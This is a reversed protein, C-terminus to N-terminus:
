NKNRLFKLFFFVAVGLLLLILGPIAQAPRELLTNVAFAASILVFIAPVVPYGWARVPRNASAMKRRLVFIGAGALGMFAIDMFTVFTIIKDFLGQFFLLVAVAWVVQVVMAVVPTRWRPHVWALQKFFIGDEAMAYYIRPASMTYISITGFISLAIAVAVAKGGWPALTVVADGAVTRTNAIADLPLLLMYAVNVLLYMGTVILVGLFMAKPVTRPADIAEGAVYSAHHWGGVSFLVGILGTLLAATLNTPLNHNLSFDVPVKEADFYLFGAVIIGAIALLKLGTFFNSLRQSVNVGLMNVGTLAVMTVAALGTKEGESMHPAFIKMYDAFAACLGALAGTNIVLLIVWGYLFGALEGYAEKLYVYVGGSKPFMGGLETFTLAGTLAIVGGLAWVALVLVANPVASVIQGPTAFIGSGICSGVAIMTLGYLTLKKQLM